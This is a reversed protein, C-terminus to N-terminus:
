EISNIFDQLDSKQQYSLGNIVGLYTDTFTYYKDADSVQWITRGEDIPTSNEILSAYAANIETLPYDHDNFYFLLQDIRTPYIKINTAKTVTKDAKKITKCESSGFTCSCGGENGEPICVCCSSFKCDAGCVEGDCECTVGGGSWSKATSTLNVKTPKTSETQKNCSIIVGMIFLFITSTVLATKSIIFRM